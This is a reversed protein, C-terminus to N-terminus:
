TGLNIGHCWYGPAKVGFDGRSVIRIEFSDANFVRLAELDDYDIIQPAMGLTYMNVTEWEGVYCHGRPVNITGMIRVKHGDFEAELVDFGITQDSGPVPVEVSKQYYSKGEMEQVLLSQDRRHLWVHDADGGEVDVRAIMEILAARISQGQANYFQGALRVPDVSRDLFNFLTNTVNAGPVWGSMGIMVNNNDGARVLADGNAVAAIFTNLAAGFYLLGNLRDIKTIVATAGASRLAGGAGGTAAQLPMSLAFNTIDSQASLTIPDANIASAIIGRAGTGDRFFSIALSRKNTHIAGDVERTFLEVLAYTNAQAAMWAEGDIRAVAYDNKRTLQFRKFVSPAENTQAQTFGGASGGQPTETQVPVMYFDGGFDEHRDVTAIEPNNDYSLWYVRDKTYQTRLIAAATTATQSM